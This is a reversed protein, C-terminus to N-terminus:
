KLKLWKKAVIFAEIAMDTIGLASLGLWLGLSSGVDVIFNFWTYVVVKKEVRVKEKFRFEYVSHGSRSKDSIMSIRNTMKKCPKKCRSEAATSKSGFLPIVFSEYIMASIQKATKNYTTINNHCQNESSLWPPICDM